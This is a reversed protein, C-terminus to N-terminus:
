KTTLNSLRKKVVEIWVKEPRSRPRVGQCNIDAFPVVLRCYQWSGLCFCTPRMIPRCQMSHWDTQSILALNETVIEWLQLLYLTLCCAHLLWYSHETCQHLYRIVACTWWQIFVCSFVVICSICLVPLFVLKVALIQTSGPNTQQGKDQAPVQELAASVGLCPLWKVSRM